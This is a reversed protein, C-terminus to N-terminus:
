NGLRGGGDAVKTFQRHVMYFAFSWITAMQEAVPDDADGGAFLKLVDAVDQDETWPLNTRDRHWPPVDDLIARLGNARLV